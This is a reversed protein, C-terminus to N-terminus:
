LCPPLCPSLAQGEEKLARGAGGDKTEKGRLLDDEDWGKQESLISIACLVVVPLLHPQLYSVDTMIKLKRLYIQETTLLEWLAEQQHSLERNMEQPPCHQNMQPVSILTPAM